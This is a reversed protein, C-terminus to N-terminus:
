GDIFKLAGAKFILTANQQVIRSKVLAEYYLVNGGSNNQADALFVYTVTGWDNTAEPFTIDVNNSLTGNSAVSWNTTNTAVPVRAYGMSSSPETIGTGDAFIPTTSLGVYLNSPPSYPVSRLDYNLNRNAQYYTKM